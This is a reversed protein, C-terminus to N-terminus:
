GYIIGILIFIVEYFYFIMVIVLLIVRVEKFIDLIKIDNLYVFISVFKYRWGCSLLILVVIMCCEWKFVIDGRLNLM